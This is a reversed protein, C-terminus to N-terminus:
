MEEEFSTTYNFDSYYQKLKKDIKERLLSNVISELNIPSENEFVRIICIDKEM